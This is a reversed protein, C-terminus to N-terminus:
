FGTVYDNLWPQSPQSQKMTVKKPKGVVIDSTTLHISNEETLIDSTQTILIEKTWGLSGHIVM